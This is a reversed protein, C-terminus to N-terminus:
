QCGEMNKPDFTAAPVDEVDFVEIPSSATWLESTVTGNSTRSINDVGLSRLTTSEFSIQSVHENGDDLEQVKELTEVSAAPLVKSPSGSDLPTLPLLQVSKRNANTYGLQRLVDPQVVLPMLSSMASAPAASTSVSCTPQDQNPLAGHPHVERVSMSTRDQYIQQVPTGDRLTYTAEYEIPLGNSDLKLWIDGFVQKGEFVDAPRAQLVYSMQEWHFVAPGSWRLPQVYSAESPTPADPSSDNTRAGVPTPPQNASDDPAICGGLLGGLVLVGCALGFVSLLRTVRHSKM